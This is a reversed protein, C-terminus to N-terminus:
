GEAYICVTYDVIGASYATEYNLHGRETFFNNQCYHNCWNKIVSFEKRSSKWNIETNFIM